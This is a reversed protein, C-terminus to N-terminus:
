SPSQYVAKGMHMTLLSVVGLQRILGSITRTWAVPRMTRDVRFPPLTMARPVTTNCSPNITRRDEMDPRFHLIQTVRRHLCGQRRRFCPALPIAIPCAVIPSSNPASSILSLVIAAKEGVLHKSLNSM